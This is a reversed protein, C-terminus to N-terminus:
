RMTFHRPALASRIVIDIGYVVSLAIRFALVIYKVGHGYDWGPVM